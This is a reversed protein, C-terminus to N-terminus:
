GQGTRFIMACGGADRCGGQQAALGLNLITALQQRERCVIALIWSKGGGEDQTGV